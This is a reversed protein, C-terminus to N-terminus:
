NAVADADKHVVIIAREIAEMFNSVPTLIVENKVDNPIEEISHKNKEPYLIEKIGGRHAALSKEVLGGIPLVNGRLTIEGTMAIDNRIPRGTFLSFMAMSIALGASPGDKPTSGAPFHIHIDKTTFLSKDIGFKDANSKIWAFAIQASEQLVKGLNGTLKVDGKGDSFVSEVFLLSGGHQSWALGTCVGVEPRDNAKESFSKPIGLFKPISGQRITSPASKGSAVIAAIKRLVSGCERELDRVGAEGTYEEIIKSIAQPSFSIDFDKLGNKEKQKPILYQQAIKVKDYPSYGPIEIIEMRDRLAPQIPRLDNATAIFLVNSLDFPVNLYNDVFAFNQAPDLVELLASSPDGKFDRNVKDIEDLVFVPNSSGCRRIQQMIKGFMAGVYTKRHGRIEAEDHVGGLSLRVFKRNMCKAISESISTKGTGPPGVFCLIAGNNNATLKRVALYEVIREKAKNLGYHDGDLVSMANDINIVDETKKNWPLDLIAEIYNITLPYESSSPSMNQVKKIEQIAIKRAEEPLDTEHILRKFKSIEDEDSPAGRTRGTETKEQRRLKELGMLLGNLKKSIDNMGLFNFKTKGSFDLKNVVSDIFLSVDEENAPEQRPCEIHPFDKKVIYFLERVKDEEEKTFNFPLDNYPMVEGVLYILGDKEVKGVTKLICRKYGFVIIRQKGEDTIVNRIEALVCTGYFDKAEPDSISEDKQTALIINTNNSKAISIADISIQRGVDIVGLNNPFIVLSQDRLALIPLKHKKDVM